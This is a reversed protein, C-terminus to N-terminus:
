PPACPSQYRDFTACIQRIFLRGGPEIILWDPEISLWKQAVFAQLQEIERAFYLRFNIPYALELTDISLEFNSALMQIVIRRLLDDMDLTLGRALPLQGSELQSRYRACDLENQYCYNGLSSTAGVGIGIHNSEPSTAYGHLNRHLRGQRQARALIGPNRAFFYPGLFQYQAGHLAKICWALQENNPGAASLEIHEPLAQLCQNLLRALALLTQQPAGFNLDIGISDFGSQRVQTLLQPVQGGTGPTTDAGHEQVTLLIRSFGLTHLPECQAPDLQWADVGLLYDCSRCLTFSQRLHTLIAQLDSLPPLHGRLEIHEIQLAGAWHQGLLAIESHLLPLYHQWPLTSALSLYLNAAGPKNRQMLARYDQPPIHQFYQPAPYLWPMSDGTKLQQLLNADFELEAFGPTALLSSVTM